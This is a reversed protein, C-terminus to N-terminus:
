ASCTFLPRAFPFHPHIHATRCCTPAPAVEYGCDGLKEGSDNEEASRVGSSEGCPGRGRAQARELV